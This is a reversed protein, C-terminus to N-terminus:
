RHSSPTARHREPTAMPFSGSGAAPVSEGRTRAPSAGLGSANRAATPM